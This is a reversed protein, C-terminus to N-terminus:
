GGPPTAPGSNASAPGTGAANKATVTFTYTTGNTLGTVTITNQTGDCTATKNGPHSTATFLTIPSGGEFRPAAFTVLVEKNGATVPGIDPADPVTAVIKGKAASELVGSCVITGMVRVKVYKGVDDVVPTYTNGKQGDIDAYLGDKTDCIEWQYNVSAGSPTVAGATLVCGVKATGTIAGIATIPMFDTEPFQLNAVGTDASNKAPIGGVTFADKGVGIFTYGAKPTLSISATYSTKPGFKGSVDPNWEITGTYQATVTITTKPTAGQVPPTAGLIDMLTVTKATKPFIATVEGSGADNTTVAGAVKFFNKAVGTLTYGSKPTINISATYPTDPLFPDDNPNWSITATFEAMDVSATQSGGAVPVTIGIIAATAIKAIPTVAPDSTGSADGQGMANAATVTFTYATGNDLGTVIIPTTASGTRTFTVGAPVVSKVIYSTIPSGGNSKPATFAVTAQGNGATVSEIAPSGPPTAPTVAKSAASAPGTGVVNTAVVTFTYAKGNTLGTVTIPRSSGDGVEKGGSYVIYGTIPSGGNSLPPTFNVTAKQDGPIAVVNTPAGPVGAIPTVKSSIQSLPGSGCANSAYVYFYYETGAVLGTVTIPTATSGTRKVSMGTPGPVASEVTYSTIPSGGNSAPATFAVTAQAIGATVTGITPAGPAICAIIKNSATSAPGAGLANIAAATFTYSTGKTLAFVTVPSTDKNGKLNGPTSTATYSLIPLNGDNVPATLSVDALMGNLPVASVATPAGPVVIRGDTGCKALYSSPKGGATTFNGGAYLIDYDSDLALASVNGNTGSGLSKWTWTDYWDFSAIHSASAGDATTFQGGVYVIFNSDVCISNVEGNVGAGFPAWTATNVNWQSINNMSEESATSFNGGAVLYGGLGDYFYCLGNVPGNMGTGLASWSIIGSVDCQAIYSASNEDAETFWGGVYLINDDSNFALANVQENVGGAVASWSPIGSLDCRAINNVPNEDASSFWGGAYLIDNASDYALANVVAFGFDDSLIGMSSWQEGGLNWQMISQGEYSEGEWMTFSGGVYLYNGGDYLLAKVEGNVGNTSTDDILASWSATSVNWKAINKVKIGAVETFKGGIYMNGDNDYAIANVVGNTSPVFSNWNANTVPTPMKGTCVLNMAMMSALFVLFGAFLQLSKSKM